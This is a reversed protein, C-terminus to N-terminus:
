IVSKQMQCPPLIAPQDISSACAACRAERPLVGLFGPVGLVCCMEACRAMGDEGVAVGFWDGVGEWWGRQWGVV